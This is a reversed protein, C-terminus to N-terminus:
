SERAAMLLPKPDVPKVGRRIEFHLQPTAVDGSKGAFGIVEGRDVRDGASVMMSQAHAYATVYGNDHQILILNGYGKLKDAYSVTGKAAAHIPTGLEAAINIGDNRQGGSGPGFASIIRGEVPWEFASSAQPSPATQTEPDTAKTGSPIADIRLAKRPRPAVAPVLSADPHSLGPLSRVSVAANPGRPPSWVVLRPKAKPVVVPAIGAPGSTAVTAVADAPEALGDALDGSSTECGTLLGALCCIAAFRTWGIEGNRGRLRDM